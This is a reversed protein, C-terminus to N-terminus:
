DESDYDTDLSARESEPLATESPEASSKILQEDISKRNKELIVKALFCGFPGRPEQDGISIDHCWREYSEMFFVPIGCHVCTSTQSM